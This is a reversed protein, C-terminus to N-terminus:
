MIQRLVAVSGVGVAITVLLPLRLLASGLTLAGAMMSAPGELFVTPAIVATLIAPPVAELAAQFRGNIIRGQLLWFGALRTCYTVIGMAVIVVYINMGNNLM